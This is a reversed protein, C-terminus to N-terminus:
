CSFRSTFIVQTPDEKGNFSLDDFIQIDFVADSTTSSTAFFNLNFGKTVFVVLSNGVFIGYEGFLDCTRLTWEGVGDVFKLIM